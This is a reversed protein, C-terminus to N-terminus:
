KSKADMEELENLHATITEMELAERLVDAVDRSRYGQACLYKFIEQFFTQAKGSVTVALPFYSDDKPRFLSKM